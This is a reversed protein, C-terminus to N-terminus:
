IIITFFISTITSPSATGPVTKGSGIGSGTFLNLNFLKESDFNISLGSYNREGISNIESGDNLIREFKNTSSNFEIYKKDYFKVNSFLNKNGDKEVIEIRVEIYTDANYVNDLNDTAGNKHTQTHIIYTGTDFYILKNVYYDNEIIEEIVGDADPFKFVLDKAGDILANLSGKIDDPIDSRNGLKAKYSTSFANKMTEKVTVESKKTSDQGSYRLADTLVELKQEFSLTENTISDSVINDTTTLEFSNIKDSDVSIGTDPLDDGNRLSLIRKYVYDNLVMGNKIVNENNFIQIVDSTNFKTNFSDLTDADLYKYLKNMIVTENDMNFTIEPTTNLKFTEKTVLSGELILELYINYKNSPYIKEIYKSLSYKREASLLNLLNDINKYSESLYIYFRYNAEYVETTYNYNHGYDIYSFTSDIILNPTSTLYSCIKNIFDINYYITRNYFNNNFIFENNTNNSVNCLFFDLINSSLTNGSIENDIDIPINKIGNTLYTGDYNLYYALETRGDNEDWKHLIKSDFLNLTNYDVNHLKLYYEVDNNSYLLDTSNPIIETGPPFYISPHQSLRVYNSFTLNADSEPNDTYYLSIDNVVDDTFNITQFNKIMDFINISNNEINDLEISLNSSHVAIKKETNKNIINLYCITTDFKEILENFTYTDLSPQFTVNAYDNLSILENLKLKDEILTYDNIYKEDIDIIYGINDEYINEIFYSLTVNNSVGGTITWEENYQIDKYIGLKIAEDFTINKESNYEVIDTANVDYVNVEKGGIVITKNDDLLNYTVNTSFQGIIRIIYAFKIRNLSALDFSYDTTGDNYGLKNTSFNYTFITSNNTSIFNNGEYNILDDITYNSFFDGIKNRLTILQVVNLLGNFYISFEKKSGYLLVNRELNFRYGELNLSLLQDNNLTNLNYGFEIVDLANYNTTTLTFELLGDEKYVGYQKGIYNIKGSDFDLNFRDLNFNYFILQELTLNNFLPVLEDSDDLQHSNVILLEELLYENIPQKSVKINLAPNENHIFTSTNILFKYNSFLIKKEILQRITTKSIEMLKDMQEIMIFGIIYEDLEIHLKHIEQLKDTPQQVDKGLLNKISDQVHIVNNAEDTIIFHKNQSNNIIVGTNEIQKPSILDGFLYYIEEFSYEINAANYLIINNLIYKNETNTNGNLASSYTVAQSEFTNAESELVIDPELEIVDIIPESPQAENQLSEISFASALVVSSAAAAAAVVTQSQLLAVALDDQGIYEYDVDQSENYDIGFYDPQQTFTLRSNNINIESNTDEGQLDIIDGTEIFNSHENDVYQSINFTSINRSSGDLLDDPFQTITLGLKNEQINLENLWYDVLIKNDTTNNGLYIYLYYKYIALSEFYKVQSAYFTKRNECINKMGSDGNVNYYIEKDEWLYINVRNKQYEYVSEYYEIQQVNMGNIKETLIIEGITALTERQTALNLESISKADTNTLGDQIKIYYSKEKSFKDKELIYGQNVDNSNIYHYTLEKNANALNLLELRDPENYYSTYYTIQQTYYTLQNNLYNQRNSDTPNDIFTKYSELYTIKNTDMIVKQNHKNIFNTTYSVYRYYEDRAKELETESINLNIYKIEDSIENNKCFEREAIAVYLKKNEIVSLYSNKKEEVTAASDNLYNDIEPAVYQEGCGSNLINLLWYFAILM